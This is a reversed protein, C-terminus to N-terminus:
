SSWFLLFFIRRAVRHHFGGLMRGIHLTMVRTEAGFLLIAQVLDLYFRGLALVDPGKWGLIRSLRDWINWLKRLNVIVEPCDNDTITLIRGLYKFSTVTDLPQGYAQFAMEAGM